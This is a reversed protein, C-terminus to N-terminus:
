RPMRHTRCGTASQDQASCKAALAVHVVSYAWRGLRKRNNTAWKRRQAGRVSSSWSIRRTTHEVDGPGRSVKDVVVGDYAADEAAAGEAPWRLHFRRRQLVIRTRIAVTHFKTPAAKGRVIGAEELHCCFNEEWAWAGPRMGHLWRKLKAYGGGVEELLTIFFHDVVEGLVQRPLVLVAKIVDLLPTSAFWDASNKDGNSKSSM